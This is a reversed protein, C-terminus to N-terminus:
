KLSLNHEKIWAKYDGYGELRGKLHRSVTQRTVGMIDAILNITIYQENSMLDKIVNIVEDKCTAREKNKRNHVVELIEGKYEVEGNRFFYGRHMRHKERLCLYVSQRDFEGTKLVEAVGGEFVRVLEGKENYLYVQKYRNHNRHSYAINDAHSLWELNEVRNDNRVENKHNVVMQDPKDCELFAMAVLRHAPYGKGKISYFHYGNSYYGKITDMQNSDRRCRGKNSIWYGEVTPKWEEDKIVIHKGVRTRALELLQKKDYLSLHPFQEDMFAVLQALEDSGEHGYVGNRNEM